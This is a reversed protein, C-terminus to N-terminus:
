KLVVRWYLRGTLPLISIAMLLLRGLRLSPEEPMSAEAMPSPQMDSDPM